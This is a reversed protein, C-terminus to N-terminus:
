FFPDDSPDTQDLTPSATEAADPNFLALTALATADLERVPESLITFQYRSSAKDRKSGVEFRRGRNDVLERGKMTRMAIGLNDRKNHGKPVIIDLKDMLTSIEEIESVRFFQYTGKHPQGIPPSVSDAIAILVAQLAEGIADGSDLEVMRPGYPNAFGAHIAINVALDAFKKFAGGPAHEVYRPCGDAEWNKVFSWLAKLFDARVSPQVIIEESIVGQFVRQTADQSWFLDIPLSRRAIDQTSKLRNGTTFFQMRMDKVFSIQTHLIRDKIRPATIFRNLAPSNLAKVDDLFFYRSGDFLAANLTQRFEKDDELYNSAEVEGHVPALITRVLFSKGTGPQNAIVMIMPFQDICHHLFQGLMAAVTAGLSRSRLPNLTEEQQGSGDAAPHLFGGDLPSESFARVIFKRATALAIVKQFDQKVTSHTFIKSRKDYGESTPEFTYIKKRRMVVSGDPQHVKCDGMTETAIIPLRVNSVGALEPMMGAFSDAAMILEAQAPSISTVPPPEDPDAGKRRGGHFTCIKQEPLWTPLRLKSMEQIKINGKEDPSITVFKNDQRFLQGYPICGAVWSALQHYPAKADFSPVHPPATEAPPAPMPAAGTIQEPSLHM